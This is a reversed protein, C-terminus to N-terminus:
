WEQIHVKRFTLLIFIKEYKVKEKDYTKIEFGLINIEMKTNLLEMIMNKIMNGIEQINIVQKKFFPEKAKNKTTKFFDKLFIVM